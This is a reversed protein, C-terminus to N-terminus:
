AATAVLMRPLSPDCSRAYRLGFLLLGLSIGRSRNNRPAVPMAYSTEVRATISLEVDLRGVIPVAAAGRAVERAREVGCRRGCGRWRGRSPRRRGRRSPLASCSATWSWGSCPRPGRTWSAAIAGAGHAAVVAADVHTVHDVDEDVVPRSTDGLLHRAPEGVARPATSRSCNAGMPVKSSTWIGVVM